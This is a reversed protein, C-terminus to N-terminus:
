EVNAEPVKRDEIQLYREIEQELYKAKSLTNLTVLQEHKQGELSNVIVHITYYGMGDSSTKLYLQDIENVAYMRDKKFHKPRSKISLFKNNIDIYTKNKSYNLIRYLFYFSGLTFIAPFLLTITGKAFYILFAFIALMPLFSIGAIDFGQIHQQVTIDLDDKYYFLDVGEPRLLEQKMERKTKVSEVEEEISFIVNCNSCKAISNQLNLNDANVAEECSPCCVQEFKKQQAQKTFEELELEEAPKYQELPQDMM